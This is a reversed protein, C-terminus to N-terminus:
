FQDTVQSASSRKPLAPVGSQPAAQMLSKPGISADTNDPALTFDGITLTKLRAAASKAAPPKQIATIFANSTMTAVNKLASNVAGEPIAATTGRDPVGPNAEHRNAATGLGPTNGVIQAEPQILRERSIQGAQIGLVRNGEYDQIAERGTTTDQVIRFVGQTWGVLPVMYSGNGHVFLVFKENVNFSPSGEVHLIDRGVQGGKFRLTLTSGQYAGSLVSVEDFTVFTYIENQPSYQSEVAAVRASVVGDAEKVLQDFSKYPITTAGSHLTLAFALIAGATFNKM